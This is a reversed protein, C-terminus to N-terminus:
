PMVASSNQNLTGTALALRAVGTQVRYVADWYDTQARHSAEEVRLLETVTSLGAEYRDQNIRLSEKANTISARAVEVQQRAADLDYYAGRVELRIRDRLMDKIAAVRDATAKERAVRARRAGGDFIDFQVEAGAVWNNGGNWGTSPSDTQWSGFVNVRPGYAAKAASVNTQQASEELTARVLDPRHAFAREELEALSVNDTVQEPLSGVLEFSSEAPMGTAIALAARALSVGNRARILDQRRVATQTQATLYDAEVAIGSVTRVHGRNEVAEATKLSAEAVQVERQALLIAYYAEIVRYVIEQDARDLEKQAAQEGLRARQLQKLNQTSDFITWQGSFRSSFDAIPAPSNLRNLAFDAVTFRQQRLRTGFAFVPDNSRMASEAFSLRPLFISRSERVAAAAAARDALALKHAPNKELALTVADALTLKTQAAALGSVFMILMATAMIKKWSQM